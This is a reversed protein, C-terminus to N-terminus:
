GFSSTTTLSSQSAMMLMLVLTGTLAQGAALAGALPGVRGGPQDLALPNHAPALGEVLEVAGVWAM